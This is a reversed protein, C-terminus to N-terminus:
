MMSHRPPMTYKRFVLSVLFQFGSSCTTTGSMPATTNPAASYPEIWGVGGPMRLYVGYTASTQSTM